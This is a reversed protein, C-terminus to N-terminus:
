KTFGLCYLFEQRGDGEPQATRIYIRNGCIAMTPFGEIGLKNKAILEFKEPNAKFVYTTGDEITQYIVNGVRVPSSSVPSKLREKWMLKGDRARICNGIGSDNVFYVHGDHVILSQEYCKDITKWVVEGSGDAKICITEAHPFGGSAIVLDDTWVMTGCTAMTTGPKAWLLDGTKPNYSSVTSGGSLLLQERGAVNAVVPSSFSYMKFRDTRWALEGDERNYATLYGGKEVDASVIVLNGYLLPSAAYGYEFLKPMFPGVVKEWVREGNLDLATLTLQDHHHFTVFLLKGDCAVTTTAQSNKPHTKPFGGQSIDTKWVTEGNERNLALVSQVQQKEDATALYIRNGAITPSSHGRGPLPVKWLVNQTESWEVPVTQAPDAVGDRSPGRWWPWDGPKALPESFGWAASGCWVLMALLCLPSRVM